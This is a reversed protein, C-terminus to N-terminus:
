KIFKKGNQIYVGKQTGNVRVGQLNYIADDNTKKEAMKNIIGTAEDGDLWVVTLHAASAENKEVFVSNAPLYQTVSVPKFDLKGAKAPNVMAFLTKGIYHTGIYDSSFLISNMKLDNVVAYGGYPTIRMTYADTTSYANVSALKGGEPDDMATVGKPDKVRVIVVEGNKVIYNGNKIALPDMYLKNDSEDVFASYVVVQAGSEDVDETAPDDVTEKAIAFNSGVAKFKGYFYTSSATGYVPIATAVPLAEAADFIVNWLNTELLHYIGDGVATTTHLTVKADTGKSATGFAAQAFAAKADADAPKWTVDKLNPANTEDFVTAAVVGAPMKIGAEATGFNITTLATNPAPATLTAATIEDKFNIVKAQGAAVVISGDTVKGVTVSSLVGGVYAATANDNYEGITLATEFTGKPGTIANAGVAAAAAVDGFTITANSGPALTIAGVSSFEIYGTFVGATAIEIKKLASEANNFAGAHIIANTATKPTTAPVTIYLEELVPKFTEGKYTYNGFLDYKNTGDGLVVDASGDFYLKKLSKCGNFPQGALTTGAVTTLTAPFRLEALSIDNVFAGEGVTTILTKDLNTITTLKECNAFVTGIVTVGLTATSVPLTVTTLNKNTTTISNVFPNVTAAFNLCTGATANICDKFDYSSVITNSLSGAGLTTLDKCDKFDVKNLQICDALAMDALSVITTPLYVENLEVNNYEFLKNLVKIKTNRLDLVKIKTGEFAGAGIDTIKCGEAFTISTVSSLGKFGDPAIEVIDFTVKGKCPDGSVEGEVTIDVTPNITISTGSFTNQKMIVTGSWVGSTKTLSKIVYQFGNTDYQTSNVLEAAMAGNFGFVALLTVLMLKFTKMKKM